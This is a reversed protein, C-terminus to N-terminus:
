VAPKKEATHKAILFWALGRRWNSGRLLHQGMVDVPSKQADSGHLHLFTKFCCFLPFLRAHRLRRRADRLEDKATWAGKMLEFACRSIWQKRPGSPHLSFHKSGVGRMIDNLVHLRQFPRGASDLDHARAVLTNQLDTRFENGLFEDNMAARDWQTTDKMVPRRPPYLRVQLSGTISKPPSLWTSTKACELTYYEVLM